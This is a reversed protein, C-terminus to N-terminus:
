SVSWYQNEGQAGKMYKFIFIEGLFLNKKKKPFLVEIFDTSTM